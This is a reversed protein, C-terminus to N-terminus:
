GNILKKLLECLNDHMDRLSLEDSEFIHYDRGNSDTVVISQYGDELEDAVATANAKALYEKVMEIQNISSLPPESECIFDESIPSTTIFFGLLNVIRMGNEYYLSDYDGDTISILRNEAKATGILENNNPLTESYDWEILKGNFGSDEIPNDILDFENDFEDETFVKM